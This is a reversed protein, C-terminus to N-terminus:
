NNCFDRHRRAALRAVRTGRILTSNMDPYVSSWAMSEAKMWFGNVGAASELFTRSIKSRLPSVLDPAPPYAPTQFLPQRAILKDPMM